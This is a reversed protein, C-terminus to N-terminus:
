WADLDDPVPRPYRDAVTGNACYSFISSLARRYGINTKGRALGVSVGESGGKALSCTGVSNWKVCHFKWEDGGIGCGWPLSSKRGFGGTWSALEPSFFGGVDVM